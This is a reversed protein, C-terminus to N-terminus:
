RNKTLRLQVQSGVTLIPTGVIRESLALSALTVLTRASTVGSSTYVRSTDGYGLMAVNAVLGTVASKAVVADITLTSAVTPAMTDVVVRVVARGSILSSLSGADADASDTLAVGDLRLSGQVVQLGAPLTDAIVVNHADADGTNAFAITYRLTDGTTVAARSVTKALTMNATARAIVTLHDDTSISALGDTVSTSSIRVDNLDGVKATIPADVVALLAMSGGFPLAVTAGLRIDAASLRGNGDVDQYLAVPWGASSTATLQVIDAASGRNTLQHPMVRRQGANLSATTTGLLSIGAQRGVQVMAGAFSTDPIGDHLYAASAQNDLSAYRVPAMSTGGQAAASAPAAVFAVAVCLSRVVRLTSRLGHARHAASAALTLLM